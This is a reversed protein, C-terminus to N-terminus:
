RRRLVDEEAARRVEPRERALARVVAVGRRSGEDLEIEVAQAIAREAREGAALALPDDDGPREGLLRRDDEEVLRGGREVDPVLLLRELDEVREADRPAQREDGGHM